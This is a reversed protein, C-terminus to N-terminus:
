LKLRRIEDTPFEIRLALIRRVENPTLRWTSTNWYFSVEEVKDLNLLNCMQLLRTFHDRLAAYTVSTLYALLCRMEKELQVAGFRNYNKRQVSQELRRVLETTLASVIRDNNGNSLAVRFPKLFNDLEGLCAEIWPDNAAYMDLDDETLDYRMSAFPQLVSKAEARVVSNTLQDIGSDLLHRLQDSLSRHLEALCAQSKQLAPSDPKDFLSSLERDLSAHLTDLNNLCAELTNLTVLFQQRAVNGSSAPGTATTNTSTGVGAQAGASASSVPNVATVSSQMYSYADQIWGSPFGARIRPSLSNNVLLDILITCAHNLMACIGDVSGSSLSRTMCQKLIFFVDDAFRMTRTTEDIEDSAVAKAIMGRLYYGELLTYGGILDQMQRVTESNDFFASIEKIKSAREAEPLNAQNMDATSHRRMFRLYLETRTNLLVIESIIPEVALVREFPSTELSGNPGTFSAQSGGLPRSAASGMSQNQVMRFLDALHHHSRFREIIRTVFGDCLRQVASTIAFLNGPGYYTEVYVQNDRIVEAICEVVQTLLDLHMTSRNATKSDSLEALSLLGNCKNSIVSCLYTGFRKLGDAHNGILPFLKCFREITAKDNRQVAQDFREATLKALKERCSELRAVSSRADEDSKIQKTLEIVEKKTNLFKSVHGAVEEFHEAKFAAEAGQACLKLNIIDDLKSVCELVRNKVLDLQRVKGSLQLALESALGVMSSLNRSNSRIASFDPLSCGLETVRSDMESKKELLTKVRSDLISEAKEIEESAKVVSALDLLQEVNVDM